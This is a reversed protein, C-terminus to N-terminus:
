IFLYSDASVLDILRAAADVVTSILIPALGLDLQHFEHVAFLGFLTVIPASDLVQPLPHLKLGPKHL